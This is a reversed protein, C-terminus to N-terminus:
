IRDTLLYIHDFLPNPANPALTGYIILSKEPQYEELFAKEFDSLYIIRLNDSSIDSMYIKNNLL